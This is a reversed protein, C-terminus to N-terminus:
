IIKRLYPSLSRVHCELIKFQYCAESVHFEEYNCGQIETKRTYKLLCKNYVLSNLLLRCTRQNVSNKQHNRVSETESADVRVTYYCHHPLGTHIHSPLLPSAPVAQAPVLAMGWQKLFPLPSQPSYPNFLKPYVSSKVTGQFNRESFFWCPIFHSRKYHMFYKWKAQKKCKTGWPFFTGEWNPPPSPLILVHSM